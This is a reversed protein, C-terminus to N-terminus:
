FIPAQGGAVAAVLSRIEEEIMELAPNGHTAAIEEDDSHRLDATTSAAAAGLNASM